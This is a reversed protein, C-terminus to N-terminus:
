RKGLEEAGKPPRNIPAFFGRSIRRKIIAKEHMTTLDLSGHGQVLLDELKLIGRRVGETESALVTAGNETVTLEFEEKEYGEVKKVSVVFEDGKIGNLKCFEDFDFWVPGLNVDNNFVGKDVKISKPAVTNEKKKDVFKIKAFEYERLQKVFKMPPQKDFFDDKVVQRLM